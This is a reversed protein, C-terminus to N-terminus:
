ESDLLINSNYNIYVAIRTMSTITALGYHEDQITKGAIGEIEDTEVENEFTKEYKWWTEEDELDPIGEFHDGDFQFLVGGSEPALDIEEFDSDIIKEAHAIVFAPFWIIGPIDVGQCEFFVEPAEHAYFPSTMLYDIDHFEFIGEGNYTTRFGANAELEGEQMVMSCGAESLDAAMPNQYDDHALLTNGSFTASSEFGVGSEEEFTLDFWETQDSGSSVTAEMTLPGEETEAELVITSEFSTKISVLDGCYDEFPKIFEEGFENELQEFADDLAETLWNADSEGMGTVEHVLEFPFDDADAPESPDLADLDREKLMVHVEQEDPYTHIELLRSSGIVMMGQTLCLEQNETLWEDAPLLNNNESASIDIGFRGDDFSFVNVWLTNESQILHGQVAKQSPPGGDPILEREELFSTVTSAVEEETLDIGPDDPLGDDPSVSTDDCAPIALASLLLFLTLQNAIHKIPIM